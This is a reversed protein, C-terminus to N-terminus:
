ETSFCHSIQIKQRANQHQTFKRYATRHKGTLWNGGLTIKNISFNTRNESNYEQSIAYARLAPKRIYSMMHLHVTENIPLHVRQNSDNGM